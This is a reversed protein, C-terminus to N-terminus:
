KERNKDFAADVRAGIVNGKIETRGTAFFSFVFILLRVCLGCWAAVAGHAPESRTLLRSVIQHACSAIRVRAFRFARKEGGSERERAVDCIYMM